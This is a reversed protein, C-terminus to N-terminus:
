ELSGYDPIEELFNVKQQEFDLYCCYHKLGNTVMLYKVRFAMNYRAAQDFTERSIKIGPAKCEVLVAPKGAPKHILIDCRRKMENVKLSYETQILSAPYQKEEVLYRAFRQRVEEEPTFHIYRKRFIDLVFQRGEETRYHFDYAPLNLKQV